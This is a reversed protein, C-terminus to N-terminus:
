GGGFVLSEGVDCDETILCRPSPCVVATEGDKLEGGPSARLGLHEGTCGFSDLPDLVFGHLFLMADPLYEVLDGLLHLFPLSEEVGSPFGADCGADCGKVIHNVPSEFASVEDHYSGTRGDALGGEGELQHPVGCGVSALGGEEGDFHHPILDAVPHEVGGFPHVGVLYPRAIHIPVCELLRDLLHSVEGDQHIVMGTVKGVDNGPHGDEGAPSLAVNCEHVVETEYVGCVLLNGEILLYGLDGPCELHGGLPQPNGDNEEALEVPICGLIVAIRIEVM